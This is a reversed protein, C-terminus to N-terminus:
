GPRTAYQSPGGNPPPWHCASHRPSVFANVVGRQSAKSLDVRLCLPQDNVISNSAAKPEIGIVLTSLDGCSLNIPYEHDPLRSVPLLQGLQRWGKLWAVHAVIFCTRGRLDVHVGASVDLPGVHYDRFTDFDGVLSQFCPNTKQRGPKPGVILMGAFSTALDIVFDACTCTVTSNLAAFRGSDYMTSSVGSPPLATPLHPPEPFM